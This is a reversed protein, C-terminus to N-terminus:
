KKADLTQSLAMWDGATPWASPGSTLHWTQFGQAHAPEIDNDLRDGVILTENATIGYSHLRASLWRFVHPDPKSFGAQFSLFSLEPEFIKFRLRHGALSADLETLTYPQSNSVLGLLKKERSLVRLVEAAGPMLRVSRQLSAHDILFLELHKPKLRALEPLAECVVAPWFIEPHKIGARRARAHTRTIVSQCADAFGKLDLRPKDGLASRCLEFWRSEADPLPPCIELLTNYIDFIVARIKM